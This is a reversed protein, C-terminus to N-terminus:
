LNYSGSLVVICGTKWTDKRLFFTLSLATTDELKGITSPYLLTSTLGTITRSLFIIFYPFRTIVIPSICHDLKNLCPAFHLSKLFNVVLKWVKTSIRSSLFSIYSPYPWSGLGLTAQTIWAKRACWWLSLPLFQRTESCHGLLV